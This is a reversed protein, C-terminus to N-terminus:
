VFAKLLKFESEGGNVFKYQDIFWKEHGTSTGSFEIVGKPYAIILEHQAKTIPYRIDAGEPIWIPTSDANALDDWQVNQGESLTNNNFSGSCDGDIITEAKYNGEGSTFKIERGEYKTLGANIVPSWRLLNRAPSIRLNYSTEPSIVNSITTFNEDREAEYLEQPEDTIYDVSNSLCVIFNEEDYDSDESNQDIYQMRRALEIRYGSAVLTSILDLENSVAKIGTDYQRKSNFEDLGNTFKSEWSEYGVNVRNYYLEPIEYRKINPVNDLTLITTDVDYFYSKPEIVIFYDDGVKEIGMGLNDISNLGKFYDNMSMKITRAADGTTPFSRIMFGNTIARFSGCGNEEYAYPESNVRGLYSSRFADEQDTIVRAIQAGAEFIVLSQATTATTTSDQSIILELETFTTTITTDTLGGDMDFDILYVWMFLSYESPITLTLTGTTSIAQTMTDGALTIKVGYDQMTTYGADFVEGVRYCLLLQYTRDRTSLETFTGQINYNVSIDVMSESTLNTFLAAPATGGFIIPSTGAVYPDTPLFASGFDDYSINNFPLSAAALGQTGTVGSGTESYGDPEDSIDLKSVFKIIKSHMNLPYGGWELEDLPTGDMTETAFLDVKTDLRNKVTTVIGAPYIDCLTMLGEESEEEKWTKLALTGEFFLEWEATGQGQSGYDDSYDISYDPAEFTEGGCIEDVFIQIIADIGQEDRVEDIFEKGAGCYFKLKVDMELTFGHNEGRKLTPAIDELGVPEKALIVSGLIDNSLRVRYSM